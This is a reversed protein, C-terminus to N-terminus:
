KYNLHGFRYMRNRDLKKEIAFLYLQSFLQARLKLFKLYKDNFYIQPKIEDCVLSKRFVEKLKGTFYKSQIKLYEGIENPLRLSNNNKCGFNLTKNLNIHFFCSSLQKILDSSLIKEKKLYEIFLALEKSGVKTGIVSLEFLSQIFNNQNSSRFSNRLFNLDMLFSEINESKYLMLIRKLSHAMSYLDGMLLTVNIEKQKLIYDLNAVREPFWDLIDFVNIISSYQDFDEFKIPNKGFLFKTEIKGLLKIQHALSVPLIKYSSIDYVDNFNSCINSIAKSDEDSISNRSIVLIDIDSLGLSNISGYQYICEIADIKSAISIFQDIESQYINKESFTPVNVFVKDM